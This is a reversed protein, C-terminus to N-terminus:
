KLQRCGSMGTWIEIRGKPGYIGANNVLIQIQSFKSLASSILRDVDDPKSVDARMGEVRQSKTCLSQLKSQVEALKAEDRACLMVNAGAQVFARAITEGLGQNAGTIIAVRGELMLSM